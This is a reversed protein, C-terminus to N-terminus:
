GLSSEPFVEHLTQDLAVYRLLGCLRDFAAPDVGGRHELSGQVRQRLSDVSRDERGVGVVPVDLMGHKVMAQLAPFIQKYALDGTAGFLVLADSRLQTASRPSTTRNVIVIISPAHWRM